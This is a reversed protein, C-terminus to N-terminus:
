SVEAAPTSGAYMGVSVEDRVRRRHAAEDEEAQQREAGMRRSREALVPLMLLAVRLPLLAVVVVWAVLWRLLSVLGSQLDVLCVALLSTLTGVAESATAPSRHHAASPATASPPTSAPSSLFSFSSRPSTPPTSAASTPSHYPPSGTGCASATSPAPSVHVFPSGFISSFSRSSRVPQPTSTASSSSRSSSNASSRNDHFDASHTTSMFAAPRRRIYAPFPGMDLERGSHVDRQASSLRTYTLGTMLAYDYRKREFPDSLVEYAEQIAIFMDHSSCDSGSSQEAVPISSASSCHAALLKDPHYRMAMRRHATRIQEATANNLVGLRQYLTPSQSKTSSFFTSFAGSTSSSPPSDDSSTSAAAAAERRQQARYQVTMIVCCFLLTIAKLSLNM